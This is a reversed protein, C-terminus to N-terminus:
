GGRLERLVPATEPRVGRWVFFSEAAQEVLMGLGDSTQAGARRAAALFPTASGYTMDYALVGSGLLASPLGAVEGSLGASTANVIVDFREAALSEFTRADVLHFRAAVAEARGLTRNALVVRRVGSELLAPVVGRAAGGAGMILVTKGALPVGLNVTVDRVLGIGDTNDGRQEDLMLTNVAEARAARPTTERCWAFAQEKFPLTVNLGRGGSDRFAEVTEVFRDLPAEILGYEMDQRAARAFRQHIWPSKSQAVPNGILAYREPM